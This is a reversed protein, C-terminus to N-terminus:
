RKRLFGSEKMHAYEGDKSAVVNHVAKALRRISSPTVIWPATEEVLPLIDSDRYGLRQLVEVEVEVRVHLALTM